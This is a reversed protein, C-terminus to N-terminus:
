IEIVEMNMSPAGDAIILSQTLLGPIRIVKPMIVHTIGAKIMCTLLKFHPHLRGTYEINNQDCFSVEANIVYQIAEKSFDFHTTRRGHINPDTTFFQWKLRHASATMITLRNRSVPHKCAPVHYVEDKLVVEDDEMLRTLAAHLGSMLGSPFEGILMVKKM